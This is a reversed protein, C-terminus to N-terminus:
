PRRAVVPPLSRIATGVTVTPGTTRLVSRPVAPRPRPYSLLSDIRVIQSSPVAPHASTTPRVSVSPGAPTVSTNVAPAKIGSGATAAVAIGAGLGAAALGLAWAPPPGSPKGDGGDKRAKLALENATETEGLSRLQDIEKQIQADKERIQKLVKDREMGLSIYQQASPNQITGMQRALDYARKQLDRRENLLGYVRQRAAAAAARTDIQAGQLRTAADSAARASFCLLAVGLAVRFIGM